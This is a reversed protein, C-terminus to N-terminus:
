KKPLGDYYDFIPALDDAGAGVLKALDGDAIKQQKQAPRFQDFLKMALQREKSAKARSKIEPFVDKDIADALANELTWANFNVGVLYSPKAAATGKFKARVGQLCTAFAKQDYTGAFPKACVDADQFGQTLAQLDGASAANGAAFVMATLLM